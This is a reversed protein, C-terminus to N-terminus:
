NGALKDRLAALQEDSALSGGVEAQTESAPAADSSDSSYNSSEASEAAEAAAARNREIQATHLSDRICM